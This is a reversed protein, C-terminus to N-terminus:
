TKFLVPVMVQRGYYSLAFMVIVLALLILGTIANKRKLAPDHPDPAQGLSAPPPSFPDPRTTPSMKFM